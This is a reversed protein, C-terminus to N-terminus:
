LDLQRALVDAMWNLEEEDRGSFLGLKEGKNPHFQLEMVSKNNVSMGSRGIRIDKLQERNWEHQKFGFLNQRNILIVDDVIDIIARRRGMNIAGLMLGIGIAWFGVCFIAFIWISPNPKTAGILPGIVTFGSFVTMFVCWSVAMGFMGKSGRWLGAPPITLTLGTDTRKLQVKSGSPRELPEAIRRKTNREVEEEDNDKDIPIDVPAKYGYTEIKLSIDNALTALLSLPYGIAMWIQKGKTFEAQIVKLGIPISGKPTSNSKGTTDIVLLRNINEISRKQSWYLPGVREIARITRRTVEIESRGFMIAFGMGISAFGAVCFSLGFLIFLIGFWRIQGNPGPISLAASIIWHAASALIFIGFIIPILGAWRARGLDRPPLKYRVGDLLPQVEIQTSLEDTM